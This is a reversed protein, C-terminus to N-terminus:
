WFSTNDILGLSDTQPPLTLSIGGGSVLERPSISLVRKQHCPKLSHMSLHRISSKLLMAAMKNQSSEPNGSHNM